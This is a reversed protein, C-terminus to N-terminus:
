NYDKTPSTNDQTNEYQRAIELLTLRDHIQKIDANQAHVYDTNQNLQAILQEIIDRHQQLAETMQKVLESQKAHQRALNQLLEYPDYKKDFMM